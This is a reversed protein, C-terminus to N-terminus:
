QMEINMQQLAVIVLHSKDGRNKQLSAINNHSIQFRYSIFWRTETSVYGVFRM